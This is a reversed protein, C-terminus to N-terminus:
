PHNVIPALLRLALASPMRGQEWNEVTRPSVGVAEALDRVSWGKAKRLQRFGQAYDMPLGSNDVFIPVNYSSAPHETTMKM